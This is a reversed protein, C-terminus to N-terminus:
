GWPTFARSVGDPWSSSTKAQLELDISTVKIPIGISVKLDEAVSHEKHSGVTLTLLGRLMSPRPDPQLPNAHNLRRANNENTRLFVAAENLSITLTNKPM